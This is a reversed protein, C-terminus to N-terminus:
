VNNAVKKGTETLKYYDYQKKGHSVKELQVLSTSHLFNLAKKATEYKCGVKSALMSPSLRQDDKLEKIIALKIRDNKALQEM